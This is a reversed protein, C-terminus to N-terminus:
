QKNKPTVMPPGASYVRVAVTSQDPCLGSPSSATNYTLVFSGSGATAPNFSTGSIGVGSWVGHSSQTIPGLNLPMGTNCQDPVRSTIAASEFSEVSINKIQSSNCTSTGIVYQIANNGIAALSPNFVGTNSLHSSSVWYGTSPTVSM